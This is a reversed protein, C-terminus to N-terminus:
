SKRKEPTANNTTATAPTSPGPTAPSLRTLRLPGAHGTALDNPYKRSHQDRRMEEMNQMHWEHSTTPFRIM